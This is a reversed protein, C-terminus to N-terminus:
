IAKPRQPLCLNYYAKQDWFEPGKWGCWGKELIVQLDEAGTYHPDLILFKIGGTTESWTVGLITHALVGGGIMVPTGERKFHDALERGKSALDSGQSVFLIRSTIGLLHSLVAQVEISGIWQRSGVFAAPKDGINVLAQQIEAHTPVPRDTYGQQRFWSCLTQLSRYACGWSNDDMRDQMYHHYSYTGQVLCTAGGEMTPHSLHVHPNRLYGDKYPEDPFHYSNARKLYPRDDPLKFQEHLKKRYAELQSDPVGAPYLLTVLEPKEPVTFHFPEPVPVSTGKMYTTMCQQMDELQTCVAKVLLAKIKGVTEEPPASVVVDVPLSMSLYHHKTDDRQIVPVLVPTSRTMEFMLDVNIIESTQGKKEKKKSFFRKTEKEPEYEIFQHIARCPSDDTLNSAVAPVTSNPWIYVPSHRVSFVLSESTVKTLLNNMASRLAKKAVAM